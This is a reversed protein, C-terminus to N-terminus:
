RTFVGWIRRLLRSRASSAGALASQQHEIASKLEELSSSSLVGHTERDSQRYFNLDGLAQPAAWYRSLYSLINYGLYGTELLTVTTPLEPIHSDASNGQKGEATASNQIWICQGCLPYPCTHVITEFADITGLRHLCDFDWCCANITGDWAMICLNQTLFHCSQCVRLPDSSIMKGGTLFGAWNALQDNRFDERRLGCSLALLVEDTSDTDAYLHIRPADEVNWAKASLYVECSKTSHLSIQMWDLGAECLDRFIDRTLLTGNTHFGLYLDPRQTKVFAVHEVLHRNLLPEGRWNLETYGSCYRLAKSLTDRTIDGREVTSEAQPCQQCRLNCRNTLELAVIRLM